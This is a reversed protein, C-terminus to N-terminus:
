IKISGVSLCPPDASLHLTAMYSQGPWQVKTEPDGGVCCLCYRGLERSEHALSSSFGRTSHATLLLGHLFAGGRRVHRKQFGWSHLRGTRGQFRQEQM